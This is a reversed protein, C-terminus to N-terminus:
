LRGAFRGPALVGRPDFEQKLRRMIAFDGRTPGFVDVARKVAPSCSEVLMTGGCRAATARAEDVLTLARVDDGAPVRVRILGASVTSSLRAGGAVLAAELTEAAESASSPAVSVRLALARPAFTTHWSRWTAAGDREDCRAMLGRALDDLEISTRDVAATGGAVRLLLAWRAEGLAAHAAEPSLLECAFLALGADRAAFALTAAGHASDFSIALTRDAKPLPALKFTAETIVGLTGLAGLHLKGMDYGAVNKVVRGGSRMVSGDAGAVRLGILWDRATGFAHRLSGQANTALLGGVTTGDEVALPELPLFQGHAALADQLRALQVGAEVTVTLDAPEHEVIRDLGTLSLSADYRAPMNGLAIHGGGGRAIVAVGARGADALVAGVEDASAPTVAVSPEVGDVALRSLGDRLIRDL